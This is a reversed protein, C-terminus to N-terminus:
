LFPQEAAGGAASERPKTKILYFLGASPRARRERLHPFTLKGSPVGRDEATLIESSAGAALQGESHSLMMETALLAVPEETDADLTM